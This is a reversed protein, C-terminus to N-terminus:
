FYMLRPELCHLWLCRIFYVVIKVLVCAGETYKYEEHCEAVCANIYTVRDDSGCVPQYTHVCGCRAASTGSLSSSSTSFVFLGFFLSFKWDMINWIFASIPFFRCKRLKYSNPTSWHSWFQRSKAVKGFTILEQFFM